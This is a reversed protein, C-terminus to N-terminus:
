RGGEAGADATPEDASAGIRTWLAGRVVALETHRRALEILQQEWSLEALYLEAEYQILRDTETRGRRYRETAEALKRQEADLSRRASEAATRNAEIQSRCDTCPMTCTTAAGPPHKRARHRPRDAGAGPGCRRRQRDLARAYELRVGGVLESDSVSGAAADGRRARSGLSYVVDVKDKRADRARAIAAEALDLRARNRHIAPSHREAEGQWATADADAAPAAAPAQPRFPESWPRGMLRNLNVRQQEWATILGDREAQRARLQAEAQLIDKEESIGLRANNRV